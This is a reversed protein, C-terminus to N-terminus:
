AFLRRFFNIIKKIFEVIRNFINMENNENNESNNGQSDDTNEDSPDDTEPTQTTDEEPAEEVFITETKIPEGSDGNRDYLVVDYANEGSQVVTFTYTWRKNGNEDIECDIIDIDDVTVRVVEPPTTVTLTAEKGEIFSTDNWSISVDESNYPEAVTMARRLAFTAM